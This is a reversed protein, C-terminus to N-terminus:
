FCTKVRKRSMRFLMSIFRSLLFESKKAMVTKGRLIRKRTYCLYLFRKARTVGVYFIRREEALRESSLKEDGRHYPLIGDELGVFFVALYELGKSGHVTNLVVEHAAETGIRKELMSRYYSHLVNLRFLIAIDCYAIGEQEHLRVIESALWVVQDGGQDHGIKCVPAFRKGPMAQVGSVLRKRLARPKGHIVSNAFRVIEPTSRYNTELKLIHLGPFSEIAKHINGPNAGRFGYISQDDDGVLFLTRRDGMVLKILDLQERSTDQFEDVLIYETRTQLDALVDPFNTLLQVALPVMNDFTIREKAESNELIPAKSFGLRKWNPIGNFWGRILGYSFAHFTGFRLSSQWNANVGLLTQVRLEMELAADKTFTLALIGASKENPRHDEISKAFVRAIRRALVTTKGSGAGALVLVSGTEHDFEVAAIQQPNLGQSFGEWEKDTPKCEVIQLHISPKTEIRQM